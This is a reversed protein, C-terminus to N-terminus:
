YLRGTSPTPDTLGRRWPGALWTNPDVLSDTGEAGAFDERLAAEIEDRGAADPEVELARVLADRAEDGGLRGLAWAAHGRVIPVPDHQLAGALAPVARRDGLNGLAVCANRALGARKARMVARGQFR